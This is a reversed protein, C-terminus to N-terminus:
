IDDASLLKVPDFNTYSIFISLDSCEAESRRIKNGGAGRDTGEDHEGRDRGCRGPGGRGTGVGEGQGSRFKSKGKPTTFSSRDITTSLDKTFEVVKTLQSHDRGFLYQSSPPIRTISTAAESNTKKIETTAFFKDSILLEM